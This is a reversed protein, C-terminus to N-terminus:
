RLPVTINLGSPPVVYAPPAQYIVPPAVYVPRPQVYVVRPQPQVYVVRPQAYYTRYVVRTREHHRKWEDAQAPPTVVAVSATLAVAAIAGIRGLFAKKTLM